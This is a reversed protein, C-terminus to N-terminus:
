IRYLSLANIGRVCVQNLFPAFIQYPDKHFCFMDLNINYFEVCVQAITPKCSPITKHVGKRSKEQPFGQIDEELRKISSIALCKEEEFIEEKIMLTREWLQVQNNLNEKKLRNIGDELRIVDSPLLKRQGTM